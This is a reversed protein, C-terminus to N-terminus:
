KSVSLAPFRRFFRTATAGFGNPTVSGAANQRRGDILILTYDSPMGRLSITQGGTKGVQGGVDVGEVNRLADAVSTVRQRQLEQRSIVSISAPADVMAQEFGSASVVIKDLSESEQAHVMTTTLSITVALATRPFRPM